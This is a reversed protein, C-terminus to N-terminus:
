GHDENEKDIEEQREIEKIAATAGDIYAVFERQVCDQEARAQCMKCDRRRGAYTTLEDLIKDYKSM